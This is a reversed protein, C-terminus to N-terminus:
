NFIISQSTAGDVKCLIDTPNDCFLRDIVNVKSQDELRASIKDQPASIIPIYIIESDMPKKLFLINPFKTKLKSVKIDWEEYENPKVHMVVIYKPHLTNLIFELDAEGSELLGKYLFAVDVQDKWKKNQKLYLQFANKEIDGSHFIKIGDLDMLYSVNYMNEELDVSDRFYSLHKLGFVKVPVDNIIKSISQNLEPTIVQFQKKKANFGFCSGDIFVISPKSTVFPISKHRSLYQNILVPDCHDYHYHTLLYLDISDFPAKANIINDTVEKPPVAFAGYGNSFLADILVKHKSSALLFGENALYTIKLDRNAVQSFCIGLDFLLLYIMLAASRKM